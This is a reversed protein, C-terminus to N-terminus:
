CETVALFDLPDFVQFNRSPGALLEEDGPEPFRGVANHETKYRVANMYRRLWFTYSSETSLAKHQRRMVQRLRQIAHDTNMQPAPYVPHMSVPQGVALLFPTTKASDICSQCDYLLLLELNGHIWEESRSAASLWFPYPEFMVTLSCTKDAM